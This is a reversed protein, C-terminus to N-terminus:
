DRQSGVDTHQSGRRPHAPTRCYPESHRDRQRLRLVACCEHRTLSAKLVHFSSICAREIASVPYVGDVIDAHTKFVFRLNSEATTGASDDIFWRIRKAIPSPATVTTRHVLKAANDFALTDDAKLPTVASHPLQEVFPGLKASSGKEFITVEVRGASTSSFRFDITPGETAAGGLEAQQMAPLFLEVNDAGFSRCRGTGMDCEAYDACGGAARYHSYNEGPRCVAANLGDPVNVVGGISIQAGASSAVRPRLDESLAEIAGVFITAQRVGTLYLNVAMIAATNFGRVDDPFLTRPFQQVFLAAGTEFRDLAVSKWGSFDIRVFHSHILGHNDQLQVNLLAGSSDGYILLALPRHTTLNAASHFNFQACGIGSLTPATLGLRLSKAPTDTAAQDRALPSPVLSVTLSANPVPTPISGAKFAFDVPCGVTMHDTTNEGLLQVNKPHGLMAIATHARVRVMYTAGDPFTAPLSVNLSAPIRPNVVFPTHVKVPTIGWRSKGGSSTNRLEHDLGPQRLLAKVSEPISLNLKLWAGMLHMGEMARGNTTLGGDLGDPGGAMELSPAGGYAIAKSALYELQQPTTAYWGGGCCGSPTVEGGPSYDFIGAWGLDPTFLNDKAQTIQQTKLESDFYARVATAGWDLQGRRTVLHYCYPDLTSSEIITSSGLHKAFARCMMGEGAGDSGPPM